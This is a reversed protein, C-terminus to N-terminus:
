YGWKNNYYDLVGGIKEMKKRKANNKLEKKKLESKRQETKNIKEFM